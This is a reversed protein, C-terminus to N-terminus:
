IEIRSDLALILIDSIFSGLLILAGFILIIFNVLGTDGEFFATFFMNGIGPFSFVIEIIISGTIVAAIQMPASSALSILSHRFIHKKFLHKESAGKARALIVFEQQETDIIGSRLYKMPTILQVIALSLAPLIVHHLRAMHYSVFGVERTMGPPLSGRFPFWGLQFGLFLILLFGLTFSPFSAGIQTIMQITRDKWTGSHRGSIIGLPIGIGYILLLSTVLLRFTNPLRMGVAEIASMQWRWSWGFNGTTVIEVLWNWYGFILDQLIISSIFTDAMGTGSDTTWTVIHVIHSLFFVIFSLIILQLFLLLFRKIFLKFM